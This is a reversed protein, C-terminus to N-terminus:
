NLAISLTRFAWSTITMIPLHCQLWVYNTWMIQCTDCSGRAVARGHLVPERLSATLTYPPTQPERDPRPSSLKCAPFCDVRLQLCSGTNGTCPGYQIGGNTRNLCLLIHNNAELSVLIASLWVWFCDGYRLAFHSLPKQWSLISVHLYVLFFFFCVRTVTLFYMKVIHFCKM